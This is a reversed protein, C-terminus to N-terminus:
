HQASTMWIERGDLLAQIQRPFVEMDLPKGIFGNFGAKRVRAEEQPFVNATVAVVRTDRFKPNARIRGLVTYGDEYPLQLDLLILDVRSLNEALKLAQWGSARANIYKVGIMRLFDTTVMLNNANDEIVLVYAEDPRM